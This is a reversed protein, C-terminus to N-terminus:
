DRLRQSHYLYTGGTKKQHGELRLVETQDPPFLLTQNLHGDQNLHYVLHVQVVPDSPVKMETKTNMEGFRM